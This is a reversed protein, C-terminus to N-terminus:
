QSILKGDRLYSMKRNGMVVSHHTPLGESEKKSYSLTYSLVIFLKENESREQLGLKIPMMVCM